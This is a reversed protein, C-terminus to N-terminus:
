ASSQGSGFGVFRNVGYIFIGVLNGFTGLTRIDCIRDIDWEICDISNKIDEQVKNEVEEPPLDSFGGSGKTSRSIASLPVGSLAAVGVSLPTPAMLPKSVAKGWRTM